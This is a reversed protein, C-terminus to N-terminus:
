RGQVPATPFYLYGDMMSMSSLVWESYVRVQSFANENSFLSGLSIIGTYAILVLRRLFYKDLSPVCLSICYQDLVDLNWELNACYRAANDIQDQNKLFLSHLISQPLCFDQVVIGTVLAITIPNFDACLPGSLYKIISQFTM